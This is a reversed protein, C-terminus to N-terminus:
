ARLGARRAGAAARCRGICATFAAAPRRVGKGGAAQVAAGLASPPLEGRCAEGVVKRYFARSGPDRFLMSLRLTALTVEAKSAAPGLRALAEIAAAEPDPSSEVQGAGRPVPGGRPSPGADRTDGEGERGLAAAVIEGRSPMAAAAERARARRALEAAIVPDDAPADALSPV